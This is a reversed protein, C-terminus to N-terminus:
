IREIYTHFDMRFIDNHLTDEYFYDLIIGDCLSIVQNGGIPNKSYYIGDGDEAFLSLNPEYILTNEMLDGKQYCEVKFKINFTGGEELKLDIDLRLVRNGQLNSPGRFEQMEKGDVLHVAKVEGHIHMNCNTKLRTIALYTAISAISIILLLSLLIIVVRNRRSKFRYSKLNEENLKELDSLEEKTNKSSTKKTTSTTLKKSTSSTKKTGITNIKPKKTTSTSKRKSPEIPNLSDDMPLDTMTARNYDKKM